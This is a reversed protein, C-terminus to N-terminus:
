FIPFFDVITRIPELASQYFISRCITLLLGSFLRVIIPLFIALPFRYFFEIFYKTRLIKLLIIPIPDFNVFIYHTM